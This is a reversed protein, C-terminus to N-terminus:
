LCIESVNKICKNVEEHERTTNTAKWVHTDGVPLNCIAKRHVFQAVDDCMVHFPTEGREEKGKLHM